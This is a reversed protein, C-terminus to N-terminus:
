DVSGLMYVRIKDQEWLLQFREPNSQVYDEFGDSYYYSGVQLIKEPWHRAIRGNDSLNGNRKNIIFLYGSFPDFPHGSYDKYNFKIYGDYKRHFKSRSSVHRTMATIMYGTVPDTIIKKEDQIGDLYEILDSWHEPSNEAPVARLTPLRSYTNEIFTTKFPFLLAILLITSILGYAKKLYSGRKIHQFAIVLLAAAVLHLPVLFSIRWLLLSYSHRLFLDVFFPNFVTFFPSLMGAMLYPNGRFKNINLIFLLIVLSGWLTIVYYFQYTPNLIYINKVFPVINELPILKPELVTSRPVKLYSYIYLSIITVQSLLFSINVKDSLFNIPSGKFLRGQGQWLLRLTRIHKQLFLYFSMVVFMLVVFLGEQRHIHLCAVFIIVAVVLYKLQWGENRFFDIIIAMLAFYLVFNLIAPALAYYRIFSFINIGFHFFTFFVAAISAIALLHGHKFTDRFVVQSFFFVALLFVSVNFYSASLITDAIEVGGWISIFSTLYYWHKGNLGLGQQLPLGEAESRIISRAMEQMYELHTFADSPLEIYAGSYLFYLGLLMVIFVPATRTFRNCGYCQIRETNYKKNNNKKKFYYKIFAFILLLLVVLLYVYTFGRSDLNVLPMSKILLIFISYSLSFSLLYKYRDLGLIYSTALGPLFLLFSAILLYEVLM